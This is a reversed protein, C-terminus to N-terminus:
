EVLLGGLTHWYSADIYEVLDEALTRAADCDRPMPQETGPFPGGTVHLFGYYVPTMVHCGQRHESTPQVVYEGQHEGIDVSQPTGQANLVKQVWRETSGDPDDPQSLLAFNHKDNDYSCGSGTENVEPPILGSPTLEREAFWSYMTENCLNVFQLADGGPGPTTALARRAIDPDNNIASSCSTLLATCAILIGITRKM